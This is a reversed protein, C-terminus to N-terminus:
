LIARDPDTGRPLNQPDVAPGRGAVRCAVVGACGGSQSFLRANKSEGRPALPSAATKGLEEKRQGIQADGSARRVAARRRQAAKGRPGAPRHTSRPKNGPDPAAALRCM